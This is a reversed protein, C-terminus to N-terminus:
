ISYYLLASYKRVYRTSNLIGCSGSAYNIGSVIQYRKITSVGMYPPPM